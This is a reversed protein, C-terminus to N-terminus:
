KGLMKCDESRRLLVIQVVLYEGRHLEECAEQGGQRQYNGNDGVELNVVDPPLAVTECIMAPGEEVALGLAVM